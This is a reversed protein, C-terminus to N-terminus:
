HGFWRLGKIQHNQDYLTVTISAGQPGNCMNILTNVTSTTPTANIFTHSGIRGTFYVIADNEIMYHIDFINGGSQFQLFWGVHENGEGITKLIRVPRLGQYNIGLQTSQVDLTWAAMTDQSQVEPQVKPVPVEDKACSAFGIMMVAAIIFTQKM